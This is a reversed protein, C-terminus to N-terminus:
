AERFATIVVSQNHLESKTQPTCPSIEGHSYFGIMPTKSGFKSNVCEVEDLTWDKLVNRRGVCNFILVFDPNEYNLKNLVLEAATESSRILSSINTKMMRISDGENFNGAYSISEDEHFAIVGRVIRKSGGKKKIGLPYFISDQVVDDVLGNLYQTYFHSASKHDIEYVRNDTAKTITKEAGFSSWASDLSHVVQLDEGSFGIGIVRGEKPPGNLGILSQVSSNRTGTMGGTIPVHESLNIHIGTLLDSGNIKQYDGIIILNSILDKDLDASLHTGADFSDKVDQIDVQLAQVVTKEFLIASVIIYNDSITHNLIEGNTSCTIIDAHPYRTKLEAYREAHRILDIPGFAFVLNAREGLNKDAVYQWHDQESWKIQEVIM